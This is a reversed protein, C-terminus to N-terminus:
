CKYVIRHNTAKADNRVIRIKELNSKGIEGQTQIAKNFKVTWDYRDSDIVKTEGNAWLKPMELQYIELLKETLEYILNDVIKSDVDEPTPTPPNVPGM